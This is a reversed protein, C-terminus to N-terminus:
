TVQGWVFASYDSRRADKGKSPDLAMAKAKWETPYDDFWIHDDFYAEPWECQEPNIPRSQKEREFPNHGDDERLQMLFYLNEEEPWLLKSGLEM